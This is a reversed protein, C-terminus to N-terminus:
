NQFGPAEEPTDQLRPLLVPRGWSLVHGIRREQEIDHEAAEIMAKRVSPRFDLLFPWWGDEPRPSLSAVVLSEGINRDLEQAREFMFSLVDPSSRVLQGGELRTQQLIRRWLPQVQLVADRPDPSANLILVQRAESKSAAELPVNHAYGGDVLSVECGNPLHARHPPFVPFASGSAFVADVARAAAPQRFVQWQGGSPTGCGEPGEFCFYLGGEKVVDSPSCRKDRLLTATVILNSHFRNTWLKDPPLAERFAKVAFVNGYVAPAVLLLWSAICFAFVSVITTAMTTTLVGRRDRILEVLGRHIFSLWPRRHALYLVCLSAALTALLAGAWYLGTLELLTGWGAQTLLILPLFAVGLVTLAAALGAAYDQAGQVALGWRGASALAAFAAAILFVGASALTSLEPLSFGHPTEPAPLVLYRAAGAVLVLQIGFALGLGALKGLTAQQPTSGRDARSICTIGFHVAVGTLVFFVAEIFPVSEMSEGRTMVIVAAGIVVLLLEIVVVKPISLKQVPVAAADGYSWWNFIKTALLVLHVVILMGLLSLLRPLDTNPFLRKASTARVINSLRGIQPNQAAFFALMAGGSTGIMTHVTLAEASDKSASGLSMLPAEDCRGPTSGASQVPPPDCNRLQQPSPRPLPAGRNASETPFGYLHDLLVSQYLSKVGGGSLVVALRSVGSNYQDQRLFAMTEDVTFDFLGKEYWRTNLRALEANRAESSFLRSVERRFAGHVSANFWRVEKYKGGQKQFRSQINESMFQETLQAPDVGGIGIAEEAVHRRVILVDNPISPTTVPLTGAPYRHWDGFPQRLRDSREYGFKITTAPLEAYTDDHALTLHANEFFLRWFRGKLAEDSENREPKDLWEQVYLAPMIFGSSSLHSVLDFRFTKRIKKVERQVAKSELEGNGAAELLASLYHDVGELPKGSWPETAAVVPFHAAPDKGESFELVSLAQSDRELLMAMFPSVIAADIQGTKFWSWIQYYNGLVLEFQLPRKWSPQRSNKTIEGLYWQVSQLTSDSRVKESSEFTTYGIRVVLTERSPEPAAAPPAALSPVAFSLAALLLITTRIM